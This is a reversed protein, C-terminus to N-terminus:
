SLLKEAVSPRGRTTVYVGPFGEDRLRRVVDRGMSTLASEGKSAERRLRPPLKWGFYRECDNVDRQDRFPFVNLLVEAKIGARRVLSAQREFTEEPDTTPPQALLYEAGSRLREKALSAGSEKALGEIDVPAYFKVPARARARVKGALRLADALSPFDRVNSAGASAPYDDGWAIMMSNFELSIGTLVSSLFQMRNVDRTVLVPAAKVRLRDQLIYAAEMSSLKLMAPNKVDAVLFVDALHRVARVDEVFREISSELRIAGEKPGSPFLPPFVEVVRLFGM